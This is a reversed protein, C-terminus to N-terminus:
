CIQQWALTSADLLLLACSTCLVKNGEFRLAGCFFLFLNCLTYAVKCQWFIMAKLAQKWDVRTQAPNRADLRYLHGRGTEATRRRTSAAVMFMIFFDSEHPSQTSYLRKKEARLIL